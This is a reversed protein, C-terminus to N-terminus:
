SRKIHLKLLATGYAYIAGADDIIKGEAIGLKNNINVVKGVAKLETNIPIPLCMKVNLDITSYGNGPELLTHLACGTVSDIVTTAFGGHVSGLPNIHNENAIVNFIIEGKSVNDVKMPMTHAISPMPLSGNAYSQMIELGTMKTIDM